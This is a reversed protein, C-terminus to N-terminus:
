LNVIISVIISQNCNHEAEALFHWTTPVVDHSQPMDGKVLQDRAKGDADGEGDEGIYMNFRFDTGFLGRAVVYDQTSGDWQTKGDVLPLTYPAAGRWTQGVVGHMDRESPNSISSNLNLWSVQADVTFAMLPMRLQLAQGQITNTLLLTVDSGCVRMAKGPLLYPTVDQDLM